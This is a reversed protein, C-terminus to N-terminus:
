MISRYADQWVCGMLAMVQLILQDQRLDDGIRRLEPRRSPLCTSLLGHGVCKRRPRAAVVSRRRRTGSVCAQVTNHHLPALTRHVGSCWDRLGMGRASHALRALIEFADGKEPERERSRLASHSIGELGGGTSQGRLPM